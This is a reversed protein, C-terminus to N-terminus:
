RTQSSASSLLLTQQILQSGPNRLEYLITFHDAAAVPALSGPAHAAARHEHLARSEQVFVPLEATGYSILLPKHTAPLRLPSLSAIEEESLSLKEQLYTDRLPGLEYLGSVALGAVVAPHDLLLATMHAGASWGSLIIQGEIGHAHGEAVLWDLALRIEACIEALTAGPALSYGPMAVSWGHPAFGEAICAFNERGNMIWYGGHLFVLCPAKPDAAPYLDWKCREKPGYPLDLRAPHALRWAESAKAREANLVASNAVGAANNYAADRAERSMKGWNMASVPKITM